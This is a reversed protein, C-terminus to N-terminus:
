RIVSLHTELERNPNGTAAFIQPSATARGWGGSQDSLAPSLVAVVLMSERAGVSYEELHRRGGIAISVKQGRQRYNCCLPLAFCVTNQKLISTMALRRIPKRHGKKNREALDRSTSSTTYRRRM